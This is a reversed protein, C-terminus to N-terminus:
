GAEVGIGTREVLKDCFWKCPSQFLFWLQLSGWALTMIIIWKTYRIFKWTIFIAKQAWYPAQLFYYFPFARTFQEEFKRRFRCNLLSSKHKTQVLKWNVQKDLHLKGGQESISQSRRYYIVFMFLDLSYKKIIIIMIVIIFRIGGSNQQCVESLLLLNLM